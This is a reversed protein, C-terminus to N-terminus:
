TGECYFYPARVMPSGPFDWSCIEFIRMVLFVIETVTHLHINNSKSHHDNQLVYLYQIM